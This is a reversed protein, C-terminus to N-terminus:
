MLYMFRLRAGWLGNTFGHSPTQLNDDYEFSARSGVLKIMVRDWLMYQVAVFAQFHTKVDTKGFKPDGQNNNHELNEWHTFHAGAGILWNKAVRGNAFAGVSETTTSNPRDYLGNVNITDVFGIAASVGGELYPNLVFQAAAGGGDKRTSELFGDQQPHLSSYEYGVKLKARGLDLIAVPRLSLVNSGSQTGVQGLVELRLSDTFYVHAALNGAGGNPRDWAYDLGYLAPPMVPNNRGQAGNRELTNLDLGMGYHYLEWGQFRGITLDFANWKGVRIYLDDVASLNNSSPVIQDGNAVFEVQGQAFWGGAANFTPTVRLVARGQNTWRSQSQDTDPTGSIIRAYATDDWFSGSIGIRIPPQGAVQPLYPWQMGHMTLWLSGGTLGRVRLEPYAGGPVIEVPLLPAATAAVVPAKSPSGPAGSLPAAGTPPVASAPAHAGGDTDGAARARGNWGASLLVLCLPLVAGCDSRRLNM